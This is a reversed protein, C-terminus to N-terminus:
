SRPSVCVKRSTDVRMTHHESVSYLMEEAIWIAKEIKQDPLELLGRTFISVTSLGGQMYRDFSAMQEVGHAQFAFSRDV